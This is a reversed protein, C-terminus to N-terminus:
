AAEEMNKQGEANYFLSNMGWPFPKARKNLYPYAPVEPLHGDNDHKLHELHEAHEAEANYVWATCTAIAPACVYFSIKRWLDSADSAHHEKAEQELIWEKKAPIPESTFSRVRAASRKVASRLSSGALFSM